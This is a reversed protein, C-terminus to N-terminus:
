TSCPTDRIQCRLRCLIVQMTGQMSPLGALHRRCLAQAVNGVHILPRSMLSGAFEAIDMGEHHSIGTCYEACRVPRFSINGGVLCMFVATSSNPTIPSDIHFFMPTQNAQVNPQPPDRRSLAKQLVQLQQMEGAPVMQLRHQSSVRCYTQMHRRRGAYQCM